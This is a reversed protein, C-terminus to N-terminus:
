SPRNFAAGNTRGIEAGALHHGVFVKDPGTDVFFKSEFDFLLLLRDLFTDIKRARGPRWAWVQPGVYHM